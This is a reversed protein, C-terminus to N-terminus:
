ATLCPTRVCTNTFVVGFQLDKRTVSASLFCLLLSVYIGLKNATAQKRGPRALSKDAGRTFLVCSLRQTEAICVSVANMDHEVVGFATFHAGVGWFCVYSFLTFKKEGRPCYELFDSHFGTNLFTTKDM